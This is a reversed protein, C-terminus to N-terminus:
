IASNGSLYEILRDWFETEDNELMEVYEDDAVKPFPDGIERFAFRDNTKRYTDLLANITGTHVYEVPDHSEFEIIWEDIEDRLYENDVGEAFVPRTEIWYLAYSPTVEAAYTHSSRDFAYVSEIESIVKEWVPPINWDSTERLAIVVIDPRKTM